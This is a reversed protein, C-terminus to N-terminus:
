GKKQTKAVGPVYKEEFLNQEMPRDYLYGQVYSVKMNHLLEVQAVTEIGEVCVSVGITEALEAVLKIFSQAYADEAIGKAFTQDVKIIDFPIERIHNLSSYGTGFDDLAIKVGLAKINSLIVKMRDMDNIALSETVELTLHAPDIGTEEIASAVKEVIDNQLLQVVSLNVNVKYDPQGNDNWSKCAECAERLVHDGIPNILGLYEALPIFEAPSIFGMKSSNWRILAEAGACEVRGDILRVIPQYYVKFERYDEASADRMNKEMDLRRSSASVMTEEYYRSQNKGARKAEYMAIDAKKILDAVTDDGCPFHVVGISTGCYYESDKLYWPTSFMDKIRQLIEESRHFHEPAIVIVFEDGGMRYCSHEIGEIDRFATSIARLLEDGYQHGLGDNIHKFDDLDLYLIAGTTGKLKATELQLTLNRECCMRNFLGTLFDTNAQQEIKQQYIKKDTIDFLSYLIADRGDVWSIETRIVDYWRDRDMYHIEFTNKNKGIPIGQKMLGDFTGKQIEKTFNAKLRNNSFLESGTAADKVYISAGVHDLVSKLAEYSRNLSEKQFRKTLVSQVVTITDAVFKVEDVTWIRDVEREQLALFTVTGNESKIVPFFLGALIGCEEFDKQLGSAAIYDTSIVMPRETKWLAKYGTGVIHEELSSMGERCWEAAVSVHSHKPVYNIVQGSSTQIQKVLIELAHGLVDGLKADSDLLHVIESTANNSELTYEIEKKQRNSEQLDQKSLEGALRAGLLSRTFDRLFDLKGFFSENDDRGIVVIKVASVDALRVAVAAVNEGNETSEVAIEELSGDAVRELVEQVLDSSFLAETEKERSNRGSIETLPQNEGDYCCIMLETMNAFDDQLLQLTQKKMLNLKEYTVSQEQM